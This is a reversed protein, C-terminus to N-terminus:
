DGTIEVLRRWSVCWGGNEHGPGAFGRSDLPLVQAVSGYNAPAQPAGRTENREDDYYGTTSECEVGRDGLLIGLALTALSITGDVRGRSPGDWHRSLFCFLVRLHPM